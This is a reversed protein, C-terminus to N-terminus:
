IKIAINIKESIKLEPYLQNNLQILLIPKKYFQEEQNEIILIDSVKAHYKEIKFCLISNDFVDIVKEIKQYNYICEQKIFESNLVELIAQCYIELFDIYPELESISLINDLRISGHAIENRREVLDNIKEYLVDKQTKAIKEKSLDIKNNLQENHILKDNM